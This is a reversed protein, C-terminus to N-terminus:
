GHVGHLLRFCLEDKDYEYWTNEQTFTDSFYVETPDKDDYYVVIEVGLKLYMLNTLENGIAFEYNFTDAANDDFVQTGIELTDEYDGNNYEYMWSESCFDKIDKEIEKLVKNVKDIRQEPTTEM